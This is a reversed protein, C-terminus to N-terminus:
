RESMENLNSNPPFRKNQIILTFLPNAYFLISNPHFHFSPPEMSTSYFTLFEMVRCAQWGQWLDLVIDDFGALLPKYLHSPLFVKIREVSSAAVNNHNDSPQHHPPVLSQVLWPPFGIIQRTNQQARQHRFEILNDRNVDKEVLGPLVIWNAASVNHAGRMM